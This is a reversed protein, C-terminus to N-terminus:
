ENDDGKITIRLSAKSVSKKLCEAYVQPYEKKVKASDVSLKEVPYVYTIKLIDNEYSKIGQAEMANMIIDKYAEQQEKLAKVQAELAKLNETIMSMGMEVESDIVLEKRQYIEGNYEAELLREIEEDAVRKLQVVEMTGDKDYHFCLLDNAGKWSIKKGNIDKAHRLMYDLLSTQWSVYEKNINLTTKHDAIFCGKEDKKYWGVVDITGAIIMGKYNIAVMQEALGKKVFEGVYRKYSQAELSEPVYNKDNLVNECDAHIYTGYDASKKLVEKDVSAYNPALGHKKLLQTVSLSALENDVRYTHTEREFTIEM